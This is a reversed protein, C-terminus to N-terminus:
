FYGCHKGYDYLLEYYSKFNSEMLEQWSSLVVKGESSDRPEYRRISTLFSHVYAGDNSMAGFLYRQHVAELGTEELLERTAAEKFTEGPSWKGGPLIRGRGKSCDITVISDKWFVLSVCGIIM